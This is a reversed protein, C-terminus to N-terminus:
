LSGGAGVGGGCGGDGGGGGGDGGDGGDGGGGGGGGDGGDDGGVVTALEDETLFEINSHIAPRPTKLENQMANEKQTLSRSRSCCAAHRHARAVNMAALDIIRHRADHLRPTVADRSDCTSTDSHPPPKPGALAMARSGRRCARRALPREAHKSRM